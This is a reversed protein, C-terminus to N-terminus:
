IKKGSDDSLTVEEMSFIVDIHIGGLARNPERHMEFRMLGKKSLRAHLIKETIWKFFMALQSAQIMEANRKDGKSIVKDEKYDALIWQPFLTPYSIRQFHFINQM